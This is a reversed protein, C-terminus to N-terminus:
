LLDDDKIEVLGKNTKLIEKMTDNRDKEKTDIAKQLHKRLSEPLTELNEQVARKRFPTTLGEFSEKLTKLDREYKEAARKNEERVTRPAITVVRENPKLWHEP